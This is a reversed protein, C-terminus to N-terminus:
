GDFVNGKSSVTSFLREFVLQQLENERRSVIGEFTNDIMVDGQESVLRLGGSCRCAEPSLRVRVEDGCCSDVMTQWDDHFRKLDENSISAVLRSRGLRKAGDSLLYAFVPRYAKDDDRLAALRRM